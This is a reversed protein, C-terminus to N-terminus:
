TEDNSGTRLGQGITQWSDQGSVQGSRQKRFNVAAQLDDTAAPIGSKRLAKKAKPRGADNPLNLKDLHAVLAKAKTSLSGEDIGHRLPEKSLRVLKVHQPVWGIRSKERDFRFDGPKRTAASMTWALDVDDRKASSGRAGRKPTKGEHDLRVVTIDAAKLPKGTHAAFAHFTDANNEEGKIVRALTDIVVLEAEHRQTIALLQKGGIPTDFPKFNQLQYYHLNQQLLKDTTPDYGLATLRDALDDLAMEMDIYVVHVPPGAPRLLTAKGTALAACIELMILSKGVGGKAVIATSRHAPILPQVLWQDRDGLDAILTRLNVPELHKVSVGGSRSRTSSRGSRSKASKTM